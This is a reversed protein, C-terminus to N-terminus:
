CLNGESNICKTRTKCVLVLKTSLGKRKPAFHQFKLNSIHNIHFMLVYVKCTEM